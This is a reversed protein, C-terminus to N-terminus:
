GPLPYRVPAADEHSPRGASVACLRQVFATRPVEVVGDEYGVVRLSGRVAELLEGPQLLFAPNSPKGVSGNGAAFTEYVLVGGPALASFLHPWLPRHLYNTVIIADFPSLSALPWDGQELDAHRTAISAPLAALAEADRDVALVEFGSGALWRAHRGQGSALDLVRGGPRILHAWRTVWTSPLGHGHPMAAASGPTNLPPSM